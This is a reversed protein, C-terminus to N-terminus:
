AAFFIESQSSFHEPLRAAKKRNCEKCSVCLNGAAHSGGKALPIIHDAERMSKAVFKKCWYCRVKEVCRMWRLFATVNKPTSTAKARRKHQAAKGVEPHAKAYAKNRDRFGNINDHWMRKRKERTRERNKEYWM